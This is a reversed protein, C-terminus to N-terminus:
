KLLKKELIIVGFWNYIFVLGLKTICCVMELNIPIKLSNKQLLSLNFSHYSKEANQQIQYIAFEQNSASSKLFYMKTMQTYKNSNM